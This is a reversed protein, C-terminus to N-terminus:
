WYVRVRCGCTMERQHRLCKLWLLTRTTMNVLIHDHVHPSHFVDRHGTIQRVLLLSRPWEIFKCKAFEMLM